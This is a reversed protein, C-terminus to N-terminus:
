AFGKAARESEHQAFSSQSALGSDSLLVNKKKTKIAQEDVESLQILVHWCCFSLLLHSDVAAVWSAAELTALHVHITM